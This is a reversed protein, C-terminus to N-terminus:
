LAFDKQHQMVDNLIRALGDSQCGNDFHVGTEHLNSPTMWYSCALLWYGRKTSSWVQLFDLSGSPCFGYEINVLGKHSGPVIDAWNMVIASELIKEINRNDSGNITM